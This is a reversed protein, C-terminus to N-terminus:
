GLGGEILRWVYRDINGGGADTSLDGSLTFTEGFAIRDTPRGNADLARLVATPATTDLIVVSIIAATSENGSNDVVTLSFRHEGIPLQADQMDITLLPDPTTQQEKRLTELSVTTM